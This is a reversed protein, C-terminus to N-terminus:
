AAKKALAQEYNTSAFKWNAMNDVFSELFKPRVNRYDIYYAHEWVDCVLLPTQGNLFPTDANATKAIELKRDQNIVLWVWGSGFQTAGGQIFADRFKDYSGFSDNIATELAPSRASNLKLSNWFFTHNYHQGANNFLATKNQKHANTIVEELTDGMHQEGELAKNGNVVYANHHKDHHFELTEKSMHPELADYAFPLQPLEFTM